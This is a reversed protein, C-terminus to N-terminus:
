QVDAASANGLFQQLLVAGSQLTINVGPSGGPFGQKACLENGTAMPLVDCEVWQKIALNHQADAPITGNQQLTLVVQKCESKCVLKQRISRWSDRM